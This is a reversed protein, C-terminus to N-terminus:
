DKRGKPMVGRRKIADDFYIVIIIAIGEKSVYCEEDEAIQEKGAPATGGGTAGGEGYDRSVNDSSSEKKNRIPEKKSLKQAAARKAGKAITASAVARYNSGACM